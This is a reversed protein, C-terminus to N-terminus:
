LCYLARFKKFFPVPFSNMVFVKQVLRLFGCFTPLILLGCIAEVAFSDTTAALVSFLM